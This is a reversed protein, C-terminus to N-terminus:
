VSPKNLYVERWKVAWGDYQILQKAGRSPVAETSSGDQRYIKLEASEERKIEGVSSKSGLYVVTYQSSV